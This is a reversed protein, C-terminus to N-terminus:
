CGSVFVKVSPSDSTGATLVGWLQSMRVRKGRFGLQGPAGRAPQRSDWKPKRCLCHLAAVAWAKRRPLKMEWAWIVSVDWDNQGKGIHAVTTSSSEQPHLTDCPWMGRLPSCQGWVLKEAVHQTLLIQNMRLLFPIYRCLSFCVNILFKVSSKFFPLTSPETLFYSLWLPHLAQNLQLSRWSFEWLDKSSWNSKDVGEEFCVGKLQWIGKDWLALQSSKGLLESSFVSGVPDIHRAGENDMNAIGRVNMEGEEALTGM